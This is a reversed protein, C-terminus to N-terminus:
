VTIQVTHSKKDKTEADSISQNNEKSDDRPSGDTLSTLFASIHQIAKSMEEQVALIKQANERSAAQFKALGAQSYLGRQKFFEVLARHMRSQLVSIQLYDRLATEMKLREEYSSMLKDQENMYCSQLTEYEKALMKNENLSSMLAEKSQKLTKRRNQMQIEYDEKGTQVRSNCLDIENQLQIIIDNVDQLKHELIDYDERLLAIEKASAEKGNGVILGYQVLDRTTNKFYEIRETTYNLKESVQFLQDQTDSLQQELTNKRHGLQLSTEKFKEDYKQKILQMTKLDEAKKHHFVRLADVKAELEAVPEEISKLLKALDEKIKKNERQKQQMETVMAFMRAQIVQSTRVEDTIQKRLSDTLNKMRTEEKIAQEEMDALKAKNAAHKLTQDENKAVNKQMRQIDANHKKRAKSCERIKTSLDENELLLTKNKYQLDRLAHLKNHLLNELNLLQSKYDSKTIEDEKLLTGYVNTLEKTKMEQDDLEYKLEVVQKNWVDENAKEQEKEKVLQNYLTKSEAIDKETQLIFANDEAWIAEAKLLSQKCSELTTTVEGLEAAMVMREQNAATTANEFKIESAKREREAEELLITAEAQAQLIKSTIHGEQHLKDELLPSHKKIFHIEEQLRANATETKDAKNLANELDQMKCSVHWQLESIVPAVAEYERQVAEPLHRLKWLSLEDVKAVLAHKRAKEMKLAEEADQRDKELRWILEIVESVVAETDKKLTTGPLKFGKDILGFGKIHLKPSESTADSAQDEGSVNSICTITSEEVFDENPLLWKKLKTELEEIHCVAKNVCPLPTNVLECSRRRLIHGFDM